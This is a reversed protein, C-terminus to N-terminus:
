LFLVPIVFQDMQKDTIEGPETLGQSDAWPLFIAELVNQYLRYTAPSFRAEVSSLYESVSTHLANTSM